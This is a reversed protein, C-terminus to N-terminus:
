DRGVKTEFGSSGVMVPTSQKYGKIPVVKSMMSSPLPPKITLINNSSSNSSNSAEEEALAAARRASDLEVIVRCTGKTVVMVETATNVTDGQRILIAGRGFTM